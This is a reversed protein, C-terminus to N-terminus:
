RQGELDSSISAGPRTILVTEAILPIVALLTFLHVVAVVSFLAVLLVIALSLAISARRFRADGARSRGALFAMGVGALMTLIGAGRIVPRPDFAAISGGVILLVSAALWCWFAATLVRPRSQAATM